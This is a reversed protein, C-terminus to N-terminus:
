ALGYRSRARAILEPSDIEGAVYAETDREAEPSLTLGEMEGSHTAEAVLRERKKREAATISMLPGKLEATCM